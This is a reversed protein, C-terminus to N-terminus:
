IFQTVKYYTVIIYLLISFHMFSNIHTLQQRILLAFILFIIQFKFAYM